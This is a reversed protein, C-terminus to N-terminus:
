LMSWDVFSLLKFDYKKQGTSDYNISRNCPGCIFSPDFRMKPHDTVVWDAPGKNCIQCSVNVQQHVRQALLM